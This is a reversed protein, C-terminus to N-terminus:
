PTSVLTSQGKPSYILYTLTIEISWQNSSDTERPEALRLARVELGPCQTILHHLFGALQELTAHRLLLQTPAEVYPSEGLRRPSQSSIRQVSDTSMQAAHVAAEIHRAMEADQVDQSAAVAPKTQLLRIREALDNCLATDAVARQTADQQDTLHSYSWGVLLLLALVLVSVGLYLQKINKV